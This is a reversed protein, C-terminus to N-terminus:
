FLNEFEQIAHYTLEGDLECVEEWQARLGGFTSQFWNKYSEFANLVEEIWQLFKMCEAIKMFVLM